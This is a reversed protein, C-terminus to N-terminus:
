VHMSGDDQTADSNYNMANGNTCGEVPAGCGDFSHAALNSWDNQDLVIWESDEATTGASTLWDGVNGDQVSSKRVLTHDKTAASVGAVDWGSGPDGNWDGVADLVVFSTEDGQVLMFGDDGNSLFTMTQDAEALILADSSPHAIIYVDGPLIVAASDFTNWYEYDGVVSPANSVNPFAYDSLDITESTPNYIEM